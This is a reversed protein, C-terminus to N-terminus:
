GASVIHTPEEAGGAFLAIQRPPGVPYVDVGRSQLAKALEDGPAGMLAVERAGTAEAYRLLDEFDARDALAVGHDARVRAIEAPDAARGSALIFTPSELRGLQAAGRAEPPWLLAEGPRLRGDFRQLPPAPLGARV